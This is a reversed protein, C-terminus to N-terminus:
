HLFLQNSSIAKIPISGNYLHWYQNVGGPNSEFRLEGTLLTPDVILVVYRSEHKWYKSIIRSLQQKTSFHIFEDDACDLAVTQHQESKKWNEVSLIKYLQPPCDAIPM